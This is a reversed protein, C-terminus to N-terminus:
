APGASSQVAAAAAAAPPAWIRVRSSVQEKMKDQDGVGTTLEEVRRGTLEDLAETDVKADRDWGLLGGAAKGPPTRPSRGPETLRGPAGALPRSARLAAAHAAAHPVTPRGHALSNM